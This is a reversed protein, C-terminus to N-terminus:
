QKSETYLRSKLQRQSNFFDRPSVLLQNDWYAEVNKELQITPQFEFFVRKPDKRDLGVLRYGLTILTTALCYDSTAFTKSISMNMLM